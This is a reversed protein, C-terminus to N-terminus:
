AADPVSATFAKNPPFYFEANWAYDAIITAAAVLLFCITSLDAPLTIHQSRARLSLTGLILVVLWACSDIVLWRWAIEHMTLNGTASEEPAALWLAGDWFTYILIPSFLAAGLGLGSLGNEHATLLHDALFPGAFLGGLAMTFTAFRGVRSREFSPNYGNDVRADYQASGHLNRIFVATLVLPVLWAAADASATHPKLDDTFYSRLAKTLADSDKIVIGLLVSSLMRLADGLKKM